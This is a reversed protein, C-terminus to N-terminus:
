GKYKAWGPLSLPQIELAFDPWQNRARCAAIANIDRRYHLRGRDMYDADLYYVGIAYPPKKEVALFVFDPPAEGYLLRPIDLYWPAQVYYRYNWVSRNFEDPAASATSKLDVMIGDDRLFDPRCKILEGTTPDTAFFSQEVKGARLLSGALPHRHVADRVALCDQYDEPDLIIKGANAQAFAEAEAKGDKTRRNFAPSEVVQAPFLDPELIATHIATGKLMEPTAETPEREPNLYVNWYHLPSNPPAIRDLHSKSIGPGTHYAENSLDTVLGNLPIAPANM